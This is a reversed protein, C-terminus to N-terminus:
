RDFAQVLEAEDATRMPRIHVTRGSGLKIDFATFGSDM